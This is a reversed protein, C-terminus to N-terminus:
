WATRLMATQALYLTENIEAQTLSAHGGFPRDSRDIQLKEMTQMTEIHLLAKSTDCGADSIARLM